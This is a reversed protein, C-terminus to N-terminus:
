PNFIYPASVSFGFGFPEEVCYTYGPTATISSGKGVLHITRNDKGSLQYWTFNHSSGHATLTNGTVTITPQPPPSRHYLLHAKYTYIHKPLQYVGFQGNAKQYEFVNRYNTTTSTDTKEFFGYGIAYDGNPLYDINGQGDAKYNTKPPIYKILRPRNNKKDIEFIVGRAPKNGSGNSYLSYVVTKPTQYLMNLDHPEFWELTDNGSVLPMSNNNIQWIVKGTTRSVKGIGIKKMAYLINGDYDWLASTLRTWELVDAHRTAFAKSKLTEEMSFLAPDLNKLPDWSFIVNNNTDLIQIYDVNCNVASDKANGTYRRLDLLLNKKMDVMREGNKGLRLDHFYMNFGAVKSSVTDVPEYNKNLLIYGAFEPAVLQGVGIQQQSLIKYFSFYEGDEKADIVFDFRYQGAATIAQYMSDTYYPTSAYWVPPWPTHANVIQLTNTYGKEEPYNDFRAVDATTLIIYTNSDTNPTAALVPPIYQLLNETVPTLLLKTYPKPQPNQQAAKDRYCGAFLLATAVIGHVFARPVTTTRPLLTKLLLNNKM